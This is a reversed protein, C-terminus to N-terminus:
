NHKVNKLKIVDKNKKVEQVKLTGKRLGLLNEIDESYMTINYNNSLEDLIEQPTLVNQELLLNVADKFLVPPFTVLVDDLPENKRIGRKTMTMMLKQYDDQGILGLSYSRLIMASISVKWRKKLEVYYSLKTGYKGVDLSFEEKPLLFAGAFRHAEKEIEKFNGSLSDDDIDWDHLLMHGLEHAIDFHVRAATNKNKSYGILFKEEGELDIRKSYADIDGSETEFNTVIVGNKEAEYVLNNIPGNGLKWQKRLEEAAEEISANKSITPLNTLPFEIYESLYKLMRALFNIKYNQEEKYKKNTTLLSRFYIISNDQNFVDHELFFKVPFNLEESIKRILLIEPNQVRNNEYMSIKQRQVELRNALETVTIGRYCRAAKLREPNFVNEKYVANEFSIVNEM